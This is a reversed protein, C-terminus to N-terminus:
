GAQHVVDLLSAPCIMALGEVTEAFHIRREEVLRYVERWGLGSIRVAEDLPILAVSGPCEPCQVTLPRSNRIVIVERKEVTTRIRLKRRM